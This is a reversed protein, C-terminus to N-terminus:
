FGAPIHDDVSSEQAAGLAVHETLERLADPRPEDHEIASRRLAHQALAHRLAASTVTIRRLVGGVHEVILETADLREAAVLLLKGHSDIRAPGDQLGREQATDSSAGGSMAWGLRISTVSTRSM